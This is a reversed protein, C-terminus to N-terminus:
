ELASLLEDDAVKVRSMGNITDFDKLWEVPPVAAARSVSSLERTIRVRHIAQYERFSLLSAGVMMSCMALRWARSEPLWQGPAFWERWAPRTPAAQVAQLVRATFNSSVPAVPLRELLRNLAAEEGWAGHAEPHARLLEQLAAAEDRNLARRWAAEKIKRYQDDQMNM